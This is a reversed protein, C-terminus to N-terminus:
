WSSKEVMGGFIAPQKKNWVFDENCTLSNYTAENVDSIRNSALVNRFVIAYRQIQQIASLAHSQLHIPVVIKDLIYWIKFSTFSMKEKSDHQDDLDVANKERDVL